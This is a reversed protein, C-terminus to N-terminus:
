ICGLFFTENVYDGTIGQDREKKLDLVFPAPMHLMTHVFVRFFLVREKQLITTVDDNFIWFWKSLSSGNV